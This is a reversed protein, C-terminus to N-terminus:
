RYLDIQIAITSLTHWLIGHIPSSHKVVKRFAKVTAQYPLWLLNVVCRSSHGDGPYFLPKPKASKQVDNMVESPGIWFLIIM